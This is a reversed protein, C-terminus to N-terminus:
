DQLSYDDLPLSSLEGCSDTDLAKDNDVWTTVGCLYQNARCTNKNIHYPGYTSAENAKGNLTKNINNM